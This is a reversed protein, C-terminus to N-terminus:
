GANYLARQRFVRELFGLCCQKFGVEYGYVAGDGGPFADDATEKGAFQAVTKEVGAGHVAGEGPQGELAVEVDMVM